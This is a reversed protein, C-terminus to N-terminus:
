DVKFPNDRKKESPKDAKIAGELLGSYISKKEEYLKNEIREIKESLGQVIDKLDIKDKDDDNTMISKIAKEDYGRELMTERLSYANVGINCLSWERLEQTLTIVRPGKGAKGYTTDSPYERTLPIYGVSVAKIIDDDVLAHVIDAIAHIGKTAFRMVSVLVEDIVKITKSIGIAPISHSHAWLVVPNKKYVTLKWGDVKIIERDADKTEDSLSFKYTEDDKNKEIKCNMIVKEMLVEESSKINHILKNDEFVHEAITRV